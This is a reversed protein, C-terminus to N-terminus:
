IVGSTLLYTLVCVAVLNVTMFFVYIALAKWFPRIPFAKFIAVTLLVFAVVINLALSLNHSVLDTARIFGSYILFSCQMYIIAVLYESANYRRRSYRHYVLYCVFATVSAMLLKSVLVSSFISNLLKSSKFIVISTSHADGDFIDIDFMMDLVTYIVSYYLILQIVMTLPESYKVRKGNIYERVVDWPHILLGVFTTWFGPTLRAFSFLISRGLSKHSVGMEVATSQGCNSCFNGSCEHGCNLCVKAEGSDCNTTDKDM